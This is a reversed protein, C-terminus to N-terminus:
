PHKRLTCHHKAVLHTIPIPKPFGTSGSSHLYFMVDDNNIEGKPYPVFSSDITEESIYPYVTALTPPEDIQLSYAEEGHSVLQRNVEPILNGLSSKTAILHHSKTTKLLNIIAAPSNRPSMPLP